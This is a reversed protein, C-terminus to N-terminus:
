PRRGSLDIYIYLGREGSAGFSEIFSDWRTKESTHCGSSGAGRSSNVSNGIHVNGGEITTSAAGNLTAPLKRSWDLTYINLATYPTKGKINGMPHRGVVYYYTGPALEKGNDGVTNMNTTVTPETGPHWVASVAGWKGAKVKITAVVGGRDVTNAPPVSNATNPQRVQTSTPVPGSTVERGAQLTATQEDTSAQAMQLGTANAQQAESERRLQSELPVETNWSAAVTMSGDAGTVVISVNSGDVIVRVVPADQKPALGTPDSLNVPDGWM